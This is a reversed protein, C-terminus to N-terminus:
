VTPLYTSPSESPRAHAYRSTTALNAHGLGDRLVHLPCGADLAHSAHAHRLTHPHLGPLGARKGAARVIRFVQSSTVARGTRTAFVPAAAPTDGRLACLDRWLAAPLLVVRGKSGKGWLSAQGGEQREALDGWRLSCVEAVRAGSTYLFRLLLRKRADPEKDILRRVDKVTPIQSLDNRVAPLRVAVGVNARLYPGSDGTVARSAFSLLSKVAALTRAQSAPALDSLSDAFAQLDQLTVAQLPVGVFALFRAVDRAYARVTHPSRGHLWLTVVDADTSVTRRELPPAMTPVLEAQM